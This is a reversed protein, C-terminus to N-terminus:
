VADRGPAGRGGPVRTNGRRAKPERAGVDIRVSSGDGGASGAMNDAGDTLRRPETANIQLAETRASVLAALADVTIRGYVREVMRSTTHGLVAAIVGTEIGAARLWTALSRRLDNASTHAIGARKCAARMMNGIASWPGFMLGKPNAGALAYDILGRTMPVIPVTRRAGDTKTGRLYVAFETVDERCARTAEGLRAGTALMFAVKAARNRAVSPPTQGRVEVLSDLLKSASEPSLVRTRPQYDDAYEPVVRDVEGSWKGQRKAHRLLAILARLDKKVTTRAAGEATRQDIYAEVHDSNLSALTIDGLIRAIHSLKVGYHHLTGAAKGARVCRDLWADCAVRVTAANAARYTPDVAQHELQNAKVAAAKKDRCGTSVRKRAGDPGRVTAWWTQGRKYLREGSM